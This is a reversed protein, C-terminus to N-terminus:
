KPLGYEDYLFDDMEERSLGDTMHAAARDAIALLRQARDDRESREEALMRVVAMEVASTQNQGTLKALERVLDHVRENKINLSM